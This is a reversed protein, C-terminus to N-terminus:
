RCELPVDLTYRIRVVNLVEEIEAGVLYVGFVDGFIDSFDGGFGGAGGGMSPDVGAHDFQDYDRRCGSM